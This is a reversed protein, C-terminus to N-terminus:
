AYINNWQKMGISKWSGSVWIWGGKVQKWYGPLFIYGPRKDVWSGSNWVYENNSVIWEGSIWVQTRNSINQINTEPANLKNAVVVQSTSFSTMLLALLFLVTTKQLTNMITINLNFKPKM